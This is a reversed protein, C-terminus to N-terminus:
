RIHGSALERIRSEGAIEPRRDIPGPGGPRVRAASCHDRLNVTVHRDYYTSVPEHCIGSNSKKVPLDAATVAMPIACILAVMLMLTKM